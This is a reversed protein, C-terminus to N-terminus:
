KGGTAPPAPVIQIVTQFRKETTGDVFAYGAKLEGTVGTWAYDKVVVSPPYAMLDKQFKTLDFQQMPPERFLESGGTRLETKYFAVVEAFTANTGFLYLRQGRGADFSELFLAGPFFKVGLAVETPAGAPQPTPPPAPAAQTQAPPQQRTAPPTPSKTKDPTQAPPPQTPKATTGSNPNSGPFPKPVPPTQTPPPTQTTPPATQARGVSTLTSVGFTLAVM